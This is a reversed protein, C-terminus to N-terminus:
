GSIIKNTWERLIRVIAWNRERGWNGWGAFSEELTGAKFFGHDSDELAIFEGGGGPRASAIQAILRHDEESSLFDGKGWVALVPGTIATWVAALNRDSLQQLFRYHLGSYYTDQVLSENAWERLEPHAALMQAPTMKETYLYHSAAAERRMALDIQAPPKGSLSEQRRGNELSYEMWTKVVTGYVAIGRVPREQALIPGWVGGMSHGFIFIRGPNIEPDSTLMALGQRFGDLQTEFDADQLPGGESDGCGPKDVRLTAFGHTAFDEVIPGYYDIGGPLREVSFTGIGQIIFLAPYRGPAKPKTLITRLRGTSIKVSGYLIRYENSSERPLELLKVTKSSRARGRLMELSVAAGPKRHATGSVLDAPANLPSKDLSLLLDGERLGAKQAPSDPLVSQVELGTAEKLGHEAAKEPPLPAVQAGFYTRRPLADEDALAVGFLAASAVLILLVPLFSARRRLAFRRMM